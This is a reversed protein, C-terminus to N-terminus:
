TMGSILPFFEFSLDSQVQDLRIRADNLVTATDDADDDREDLSQQRLHEHHQIQQQRQRNHQNEMHHEEQQQQQRHHLHPHNHHQQHEYIDILKEVGEGGRHEREMDMAVHVIYRELLQRRREDNM